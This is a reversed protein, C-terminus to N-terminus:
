EIQWGVQSVLWENNKKAFKYNYDTRQNIGYITVTASDSNISFTTVVYRLPKDTIKSEPKLSESVEPTDDIYVIKLKDVENPWSSNYYKFKESKIIYITDVTKPIGDRFKGANFATSIIQTTDATKHGTKGTHCSCLYLSCIFAIFTIKM